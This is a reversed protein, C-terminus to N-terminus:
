DTDYEDLYFDECNFYIQVGGGTQQVSNNTITLDTNPLLDIKTNALQLGAGIVATNNSIRTSGSFVIKSGVASIATCNNSEM